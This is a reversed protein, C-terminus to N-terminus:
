CLKHAVAKEVKESLLLPEPHPRPLLAGEETAGARWPGGLPRGPAPHPEGLNGHLDPTVFGWSVSIKTNDTLRHIKGSLLM